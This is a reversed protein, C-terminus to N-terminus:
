NQHYSAAHYTEQYVMVADLGLKKLEAYEQEALPQVEMMLASFNKRIAPLHRRFYEMGVKTQHEGTVLLLHEFGQAKIASCERIIEDENLTKRKIKNSMSFGCYSCE